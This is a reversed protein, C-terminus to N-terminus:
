LRSYLNLDFLFEFLSEKKVTKQKPNKLYGELPKAEEIYPTNFENSVFGDCHTDEEKEILMNSFLEYYKGNKERVLLNCHLCELESGYNSITVVTAVYVDSVIVHKEERSERPKFFRM